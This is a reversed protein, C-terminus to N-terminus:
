ESREMRFTKNSLCHITGESMLFSDYGGTEREPTIRLRATVTAPVVAYNLLM